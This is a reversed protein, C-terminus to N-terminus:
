AKLANAKWTIVTPNTTSGPSGTPYIIKVIDDVSHTTLDTEQGGVNATFTGTSSFFVFCTDGLTKITKKTGAYDVTLSREKEGTAKAYEPDAYVKASLAPDYMEGDVDAHAGYYFDVRDTVVGVSTLLEIASFVPVPSDKEYVFVRYFYDSESGDESGYVLDYQTLGTKEDLKGNSVEVNNGKFLDKFVPIYNKLSVVKKVDKWDAEENPGFIVRGSLNVEPREFFAKYPNEKDDKDYRTVFTTTVNNVDDFYKDVFLDHAAYMYTTEDYLSDVGSRLKEFKIKKLKKFAKAKIASKKELKLISYKYVASKGNKTKIAILGKKKDRIRVEKVKKVTAVPKVKDGFISAMKDEYSYIELTGNPYLALLEPAGDNNVDVSTSVKVKKSKKRLNKQAYVYNQYQPAVLKSNQVRRQDGEVLSQLDADFAEIDAKLKEALSTDPTPTVASGTAPAPTVSSGTTVEAVGLSTGEAANTETGSVVVNGLALALILASAVPKKWNKRM